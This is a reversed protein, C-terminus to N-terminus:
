ENPQGGDYVIELTMTVLDGEYVLREGETGDNRVPFLKVCVYRGDVPIDSVYLKVPYKGHRILQPVYNIYNEQEDASLQEKMFSEWQEELKRLVDKSELRRKALASAKAFFADQECQLEIGGFRVKMTVYREDDIFRGCPTLPRASPTQWETVSEIGCKAREESGWM